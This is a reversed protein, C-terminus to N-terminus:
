CAPNAAGSPPDVRYVALRGVEDIAAMVKTHHDLIVAVAHGRAGALRLAACKVDEDTLAQSRRAELSDFVFYRIWEGRAVSFVPRDLYAAVAIANYDEGSVVDNQLGAGRVGNALAESGFPPLTPVVLFFAVIQVALVVALLITLPRWRSSPPARRADDVPVEGPPAFATWSAAILLLVLQGAFRSQEPLIVLFYFATLGALGVWWLRRAFGGYLARGVIVCIALSVAAQLWVSAPLRDALNTNWGGLRAPVPVFGRWAGTLAGVARTLTGSGFHSASAM